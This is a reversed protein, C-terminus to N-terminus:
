SLMRDMTGTKIVLQLSFDTRRYPLSHAVGVTKNHIALQQPFRFSQGNYAGIVVVALGVPLRDIATTDVLLTLNKFFWGIHAVYFRM